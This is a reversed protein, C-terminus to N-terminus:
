DIDDEDDDGFPNESIREFFSDKFMEERRKKEEEPLAAYEAARREDAQKVLIWSKEFEEQTM